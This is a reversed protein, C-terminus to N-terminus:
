GNPPIQQVFFAATAAQDLPAQFYSNRVTWNDGGQSFIADMHMPNNPDLSPQVMDHVCCSEILASDTLPLGQPAGSCDVRIATLIRNASADTVLSVDANPWPNTMKLTVNKLFLTSAVPASTSTAAFSTYLGTNGNDGNADIVCNTLSGNGSGTWYLGGGHVYAHDLSMDTEDNRLWTGFWGFGFPLPQGDGPLGSGPPAYHTL